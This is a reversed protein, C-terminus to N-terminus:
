GKPRSGAEQTAGVFRKRNPGRVTCGVIYFKREHMATV